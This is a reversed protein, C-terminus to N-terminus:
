ALSRDRFQFGLMVESGFVKPSSIRQLRKPGAELSCAYFKEERALFTTLSNPHLEGGFLLKQMPASAIARCRMLGSFMSSPITKPHERASRRQNVILPDFLLAERDDDRQLM